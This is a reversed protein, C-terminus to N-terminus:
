IPQGAYSARQPCLGTADVVEVWWLRLTRDKSVRPACHVCHRLAHCRRVEVRPALNSYGSSLSASFHRSLKGMKYHLYTFFSVEGTVLENALAVEASYNGITRYTSILNESAHFFDVIESHYKTVDEFKFQSNVQRMLYAFNEPTRPLLSSKVFVYDHM